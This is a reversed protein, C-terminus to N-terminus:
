KKCDVLKHINKKWNLNGVKDADPPCYRNALYNLFCDSKNSNQWRNYTNKITNLCIRRAKQKNKNTNISKIGYPYATKSGGEILYISNAIKNAYIDSIAGFVNINLSFIFLFIFIKIM